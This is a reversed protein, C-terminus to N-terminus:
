TSVEVGKIHSTFVVKSDSKRIGQYFSQIEKSDEGKIMHIDIEDGLKAESIFNIDFESVVFSRHYNIPITDLIWQSYKTNNVHNNMDLDSNRVVITNEVKMNEPVIVKEPIINLEKKPIGQVISEDLKPQIPRRTTGDLVMFTAASEGIQEDGLHITWDRYAKMGHIRRPWTKVLIKDQWKPWKKMILKQQTFVWFANNKVMAELGVGMHEAHITGVDQLIGLMGFLGLRKNMNINVSNVEYEKEFYSENM